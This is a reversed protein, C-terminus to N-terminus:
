KFFIIFSFPSFLNEFFNFFILFGHFIVCFTAHNKSRTCKKPTIKGESKVVSLWYHGGTVNTCYKNTWKKSLINKLWPQNYSVRIASDVPFHNRWGPAFSAGKLEPSTQWFQGALVSPAWWYRYFKPRYIRNEIM